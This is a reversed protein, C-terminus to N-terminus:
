YGLMNKEMTMYDFVFVPVKGCMSTKCVSWPFEEVVLSIYYLSESMHWLAIYYDWSTPRHYNIYLLKYIRSYHSNVLNGIKWQRLHQQLLYVQM